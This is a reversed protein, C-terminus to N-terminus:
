EIGHWADEIPLVEQAVLEGDEEVLHTRLVSNSAVLLRLARELHEPDAPQVPRLLASVNFYHPNPSGRKALRIQAPSVPLRGVDPVTMETDAAGGDEVLRGVADIMDTLKSHDFLLNLSVGVGLARSLQDAMRAAQLSDGGLEFFDDSPQIIDFGLIDKWVATIHDDLSGQDDLAREDGGAAQELFPSVVHVDDRIRTPLDTPSVVMVPEDAALARGLLAVGEEPSFSNLEDMLTIDAGYTKGFDEAARVSMGITLWDDWAITSVPLGRQRSRLAFAEAMGNGTVYGVQAFRNHYLTSAVSSSLLIFDVERGRFLRELILSGHAKSAISQRMSDRTRRHISGGQDAVGAAVIVGNVPGIEAEARWVVDTMAGEDAADAAYVRSEPSFREIEELLALRQRQEDRMDDDPEPRGGRSTLALKAGYTEA